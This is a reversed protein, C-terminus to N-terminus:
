PVKAGEIRKALKAFVKEEDHDSSALMVVVERDKWGVDM